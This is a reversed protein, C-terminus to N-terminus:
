SVKGAQGAPKKNTPSIYCTIFILISYNKYIQSVYTNAQKRYYKGTKLTLYHAVRIYFTCIGNKQLQKEPLMKPMPMFLIYFTKDGKERIIKIKDDPAFKATSPAILEKKIIKKAAVRLDHDTPKQYCGTFFLLIVVAHIIKVKM